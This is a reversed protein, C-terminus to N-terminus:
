GVVGVDLAPPSKAPSPQGTSQLKVVDISEMRSISTPAGLGWTVVVFYM